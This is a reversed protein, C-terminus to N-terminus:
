FTFDYDRDEGWSVKRQRKTGDPATAELTYAGPPVSSFSYRGQVDSAISQDREVVRVQVAPLPDGNKDFVTGGIQLVQEGVLRKGSERDAFVVKKTLVLPQKEIIGLDLDLTVRLSISPKFENNLASWIEAPNELIETQAIETAVPHEQAKLQGTYYDEPLPSFRLLIALARWLLHYEDEPETAWATVMYYVDVRRPAWTREVMDQIQHNRWNIDRLKRNELLKLLFFNVTPRNIKASWDRTPQEFSVDIPGDARLNKILLEKLSDNLDDLM